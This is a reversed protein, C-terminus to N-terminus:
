MELTQFIFFNHKVLSQTFAIEKLDPSCVSTRSVISNFKWRSKYFVWCHFDQDLYILSNWSESFFFQNLIANLPPTQLSPPLRKHVETVPVPSHVSVKDSPFFLIHPLLYSLPFSMYLCFYSVLRDSTPLSLRNYKLRYQLELCQVAVQRYVNVSSTDVQSELFKMNVIHHEIFDHYSVVRWLSCHLCLLAEVNLRLITLWVSSSDFKEQLNEIGKENTANLVIFYVLFFYLFPSSFPFSYLILSAYYSPFLTCCLYPFSLSFM